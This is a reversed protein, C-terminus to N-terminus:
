LEEKTQSIEEQQQGQQEEAEVWRTLYDVCVLIYEFGFSVPFPGMFDIGWIEFAQNVLSNNQPMEDRKSISGTRQCRDCNRVWEKADKFLTPWYLGAQLM